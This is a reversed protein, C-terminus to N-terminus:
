AFRPWLEPPHAKRFNLFQIMAKSSQSLNVVKYKLGLTPDDVIEAYTKNNAKGSPDNPMFITDWYFETTGRPSDAITGSTEGVFTVVTKGDCYAVVARAKASRKASHTEEVFQKGLTNWM